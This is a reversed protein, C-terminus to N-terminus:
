DRKGCTNQLCSFIEVSKAIGVANVDGAQGVGELVAANQVTGDQPCGVTFLDQILPERCVLVYFDMGENGVALVAHGVVSVNRLVGGDAGVAAAKIQM